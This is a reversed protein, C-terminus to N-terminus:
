ANQEGILPYFTATATCTNATAITFTQGKVGFITGVNTKSATANSYQFYLLIVGDLQFNAVGYSSDIFTCVIWGNQPLVTGSTIAVGATTDIGLWGFLTAQASKSPAANDMDLDMKDNIAESLAGYNINSSM